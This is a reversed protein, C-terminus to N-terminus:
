IVEEFPNIKTTIEYLGSETMVDFDYCILMPKMSNSETELVDIPGTRVMDVVYTTYMDCDSYTILDTEFLWADADWSILPLSDGNTLDSTKVIWIKAGRCHNYDDFGNVNGCYNPSPHINWDDSHPLNRELDTSIPLNNVNGNFTTIVQGGAGNWNMPDFRDEQDPYYILAYEDESLGTTTLTGTFKPNVTDFILTAQTGDGTIAQWGSDKNELILTTTEPIEYIETKIANCNDYSGDRICSTTFELDIDISADNTIKHLYCFHEGGPAAEPILHEFWSEEEGDIMIAPEVDTILYVVGFYQILAASVFVMAFLGIMGFIILNKKNM